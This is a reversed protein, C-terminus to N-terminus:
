LVTTCYLKKKEMVYIWFKEKYAIYLKTNKRGMSSYYINENIYLTHYCCEDNVTIFESNYQCKYIPFFKNICAEEEEKIM